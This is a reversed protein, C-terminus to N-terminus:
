FGKPLKVCPAFTFEGYYHQVAAQLPTGGDEYVADRIQGDYVDMVLGILSEHEVQWPTNGFDHVKGLDKCGAAHVCFSTKAQKLQMGWQKAWGPGVVTLKQKAM